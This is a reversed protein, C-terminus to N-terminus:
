RNQDQLQKKVYDLRLDLDKPLASRPLTKIQEYLRIAERLDLKSEADIAERRLRAALVGPDIGPDLKPTLDPKTTPEAKAQAPRPAVAAPHRAPDSVAFPLQPQTTSALEIQGVPPALQLKPAAAIKAPLEAVPKQTAEVKPEPKPAPVEARAPASTPPRQSALAAPDVTSKPQTKAKAAPPKAESTVNGANTPRKEPAPTLKEQVWLRLEQRFDPYVVLTAGFTAVGVLLMAGLTKVLWRSKISEASQAASGAQPQFNLKFAAALEKATLIGESPQERTRPPTPAALAAYVREDAQGARVNAAIEREPLAAAPEKGRPDAEAAVSPEAVAPSEIAAAEGVDVPTSTQEEPQPEATAIRAGPGVPPSAPRKGQAKTQEETGPVRLERRIPEVTGFGNQGELLMDPNGPPEQLKQCHICVRATTEVEGGCAYCLGFERSLGKVRAAFRWLQHTTPGRVISRPTVQGRRVLVMLTDFKMGPASPNRTQLVYWPGIRNRTAHRTQATDEM